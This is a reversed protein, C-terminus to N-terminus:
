FVKRRAIQMLFLLFNYFFLSELLNHLFDPDKDWAYIPNYILQLFAEVM